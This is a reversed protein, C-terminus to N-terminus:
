CRWRVPLSEKTFAWIRGYHKKRKRNQISQLERKPLLDIEQGKLFNEKDDRM